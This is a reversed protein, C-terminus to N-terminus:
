STPGVSMWFVSRTVVAFAIAAWIMLRLNSRTGAWFSLGVRPHSRIIWHLIASRSLIELCELAQHDLVVRGALERVGEGLPKESRIGVQGTRGGRYLSLRMGITPAQTLWAPDM